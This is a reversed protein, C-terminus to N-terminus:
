DPGSSDTKKTEETRLSSQVNNGVSIRRATQDFPTVKPNSTLLDLM